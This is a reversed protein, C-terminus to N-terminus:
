GLETNVGIVGGEEDFFSDSMLEGRESATNFESSKKRSRNDELDVDIENPCTLSRRAHDDSVIASKSMKNDRDTEVAASGLEM